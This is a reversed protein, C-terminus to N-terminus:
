GTTRTLDIFLSWEEDSLGPWRVEKDQTSLHPALRKLVIKLLASGEARKNKTYSDEMWQVMWEILARVDIRVLGEQDEISFNRDDKTVVNAMRLVERLEMM